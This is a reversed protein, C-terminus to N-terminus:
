IPDLIYELISLTQFMSKSTDNSYPDYYIHIYIYIYININAWHIWHNTVIATSIIDLDWDHSKPLTNM